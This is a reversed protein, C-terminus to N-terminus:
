EVADWVLQAISQYNKQTAEALAMECTKSSSFYGEVNKTSLEKAEMLTAAKTLEPHLMGRDGAMGCCGAYLPVHVEAACQKAIHLLKHSNKMKTLSCVPHLAVMQKKHQLKLKPLVHDHLYDVSDLILMRDFCKKNEESLFPRAELLTHTCSSMDLVVPLLGQQSQQWLWEVTKNKTFVAADKFGKSSFPQGCCSGHINAPIHLLLGAKASLQMMLEVVSLNGEADKGMCRTICTVFYVFQPNGNINAPLHVPGTQTPMWKPFAPIIKKFSSTIFTVTQKSFVNNVLVGSKLLLKVLTETFSFNNAVILALKNEFNSHNEKRLRKVLSGTNIDVPCDSACLGDVACTDLGDYQYQKLLTQYDKENSNTKM